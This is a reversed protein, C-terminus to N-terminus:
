FTWTKHLIIELVMKSGFYALMLSIFGGLTWRIATQGRWGFVMRGILLVLFLIWAFMSLVTKHALHQAFLDQVFLLGSALSITLLLLGAGIMQFLLSEMTQLPPFSSIFPNSRHHHLQRDQFALLVAQIAAINLISYALISSLIHIDMGVSTERIIHMQQPLSLKCTQILAALPFIVIGLKEVPKGLATTFVIVVILLVVLSASSMFSFNMGQRNWFDESLSAAHLVAAIGAPLLFHLPKPKKHGSEPHKNIISRSVLVTAIVYVMISLIGILNSYAM